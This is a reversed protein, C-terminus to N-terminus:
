ALVVGSPKIKDRFVWMPDMADVIQDMIALADYDLYEEPNHVRVNQLGTFQRTGDDMELGVSKGYRTSGTWFIRGVTGKPIKRGSVVIAQKDKAPTRAEIELRDGVVQRMRPLMSEAFKARVEETADVTAWGGGGCRTTNYGVEKATGKEDDWVVAYFDSDDYYNREGKYLVAGIYIEEISQTGSLEGAKYSYTPYTISM